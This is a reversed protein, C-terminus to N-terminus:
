RCFAGALEALGVTYTLDDYDAAQKKQPSMVCTDASANPGDFFNGGADDDANTEGSSVLAFAALSSTGAACSTSSVPAVALDGSVFGLALRSKLAECLDDGDRGDIQWSSQDVDTSTKLSAAVVYRLPRGYADAASGPLGMSLFPLEGVNAGDCDERGDGDVDPCPLRGMSTAFGQVGFAHAEFARSVDVTTGSGSESSSGRASIAGAAILAAASVLVLALEVLSFGREGLAQRVSRTRDLKSKECHM